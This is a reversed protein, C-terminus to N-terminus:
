EFLEFDAGSRVFKAFPAVDQPLDLDFEIPHRRREPFLHGDCLAVGPLREAANHIRAGLDGGSCWNGNAASPLACHRCGEVACQSGRLVVRLNM